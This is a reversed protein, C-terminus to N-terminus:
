RKHCLNSCYYCGDVNSFYQRAKLIANMCNSHYGLDIKSTAIRLYNCNEVHVEHEGSSQPNRNVYYKKM